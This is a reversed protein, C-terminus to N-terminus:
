HNPTIKYVTEGSRVMGHQERAVREIAARDTELAKSQSKLRQTEEEANRLRQEMETKQQELRLRSVLGRSGFLGYGGLPVCIALALLFRKNRFLRRLPERFDWPSKKRRYFQNEM